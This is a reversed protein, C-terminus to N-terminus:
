KEMRERGWGEDKWGKGSWGEMWEQRKWCVMREEVGDKRGSWRKLGAKGRNWDEKFGEM